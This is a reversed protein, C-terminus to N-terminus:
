PAPLLFRQQRPPPSARRISVRALDDPSASFGEPLAPPSLELRERQAFLFVLGGARAANVAFQFLLATKGSRPAPGPARSCTVSCAPTRPHHSRPHQLRSRPRSANPARRKPQGSLCVRIDPPVPQPQPGSPLFLSRLIPEVQVTSSPRSWPREPTAPQM